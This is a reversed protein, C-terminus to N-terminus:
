SACDREITMVLHLLCDAVVVRFHYFFQLEREEVRLIYDSKRFELHGVAFEVCSCVAKRHLITNQVSAQYGKEM